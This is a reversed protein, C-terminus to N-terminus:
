FMPRPSHPDAQFLRREVWWAAWRAEIERPDYSKALEVPMFLQIYCKFPTRLASLM